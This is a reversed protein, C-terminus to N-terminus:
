PTLAPDFFRNRLLCLMVTGGRPKDILTPNWRLRGGDLSEHARTRRRHDRGLFLEKQRRRYASVLFRHDIQANQRAICLLLKFVFKNTSSAKGSGM